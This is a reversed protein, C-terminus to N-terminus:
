LSLPCCGWHEQASALSCRGKSSPANQGGARRCRPRRRRRPGVRPDHARYSATLGDTGELLARSSEIAELTRGSRQQGMALNCEAIRSYITSAGVAECQRVAEEVRDCDGTAAFAAAALMAAAGRASAGSTVDALKRAESLAALTLGPQEQLSELHARALRLWLLFGPDLDPTALALAEASEVLTLAFGFHGAMALASCAGELAVAYPGSPMPQVTVRVISRLTSQFLNADGLFNGASLLNAACAYWEPSAEAHLTMAERGLLLCERWQGRVAHAGAQLTLILGRAADNPECSLGRAALAIVAEAHGGDYALQMAQAFWPAARGPEAHEFHEAITLPDTEGVGELWEGALRHGVIRDKDTLMAYAADRLLGHRFAYQRTGPFRGPIPPAFVERTTLIELWAGLDAADSSQGLVAAIGSEWFTEGFVSAARVIRRADPELCELRSQVLALVTEPLHESGGEAARRVLEELYFPNGSARDVLRTVADPDFAAGLAARVLREAARPSLSALSVQLAESVPWMGAFTTTAEPRALALVMLPKTALARLAEGVYAVTPVDGWHLDDMVVLLPGAACEAAMWEAFSRRLWEGMLQPDNRAARLQPCPPQASVVGLLEGLFDALRRPDGDPVIEATYARLRRDQDVDSDGERLHVAERVLQRALMFASGAGIPDARASLIRVDGAARVGAIFEHRLRSKGQGPPGTVLVARAIADDKCERLTADLIGLERDRGVHPAVKGLLTRPAEDERRPGLLRRGRDDQAVDFRERLIGATLEDIWIGEAASRTLLEAAQDIIPGPPAGGTSQARGTALGIRAAPFARRLTLARAAAAIVQDDTTGRGGLSTLWAGNALRTWEREDDSARADLLEDVGRAEDPVVALIVCVLRKEGVSLGETVRVGAAPAGGTLGGLAELEALVARADAPRKSRDKALMRGVLDDLALPLEPRLQRLRPPEERLVKALVAVVHDGSFAPEGTLCEFLVCGLAFVDTRVDLGRDATAQEPSMYGVTGLAVGTRTLAARTPAALGSLQMRVIGFDLLKTRAAEGGVLFVNSPKIDRHIVGRAHAAALGEAVRRVVTVSDAVGLGAEGLTQALDAGDLWEMALFSRGNSTSGHAVYRVIAPHTLEALVRAEQAFREDDRAASTVFKLAVPAGTVRDLARYVTGMGGSGALREVEFRDGVVDGARLSGPGRLDLGGGTTAGVVRPSEVRPSAAVARLLPDLPESDDLTM